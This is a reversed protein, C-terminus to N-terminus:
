LATSVVRYYGTINKLTYIVIQMMYIELYTM